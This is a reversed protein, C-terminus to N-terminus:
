LNEPRRIKVVAGKMSAVWGAETARRVVEKWVDESITARTENVDFEAEDDTRLREEATKEIEAVQRLQDKTLKGIVEAPTKM